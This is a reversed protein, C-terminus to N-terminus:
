TTPAPTPAPAPPNELATVRTTLADLAAQLATVQQGQATATQVATALDAQTATLDTLLNSHYVWVAQMAAVVKSRLLDHAPDPLPILLDALLATIDPPLPATV